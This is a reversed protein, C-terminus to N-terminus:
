CSTSAQVHPNPRCIPVSPCCIPTPLWTHLAAAATQTTPRGTKGKEALQHALARGMGDTAGTVVAWSGFTKPHIAPRFFYTHVFRLTRALLRLTAYALYLALALLVVRRRAVAAWLGAQLLNHVQLVAELGAAGM